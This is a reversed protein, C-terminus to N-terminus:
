DQSPRTSALQEADYGYDLLLRDLDHEREHIRALMVKNFMPPVPFWETSNDESKWRMVLMPAKENMGLKPAFFSAYGIEFGQDEFGPFLRMNEVEAGATAKLSPAAEVVAEEAVEEAAMSAKETVEDATKASKKITPVIAADLEEKLAATADDASGRFDRTTNKKKSKFFKM